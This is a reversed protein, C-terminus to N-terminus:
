KSCVRCAGAELPAAQWSSSCQKLSSALASDESFSQSLQILAFVFVLDFFLEPFSAKTQDTNEKRLWHPHNQAISGEYPHSAAIYLASLM